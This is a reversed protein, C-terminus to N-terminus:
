RAIYYYFLEIVMCLSYRFSPWRCVVSFDSAVTGARLVGCCWKVFVLGDYRSIGYFSLASCLKMPVISSCQLTSVYLRNSEVVCLLFCNHQVYWKREKLLHM